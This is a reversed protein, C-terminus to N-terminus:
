EESNDENVPSFDHINKLQNDKGSNREDLLFSYLM